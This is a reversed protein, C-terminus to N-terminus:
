FHEKATQAPCGRSVRSHPSLQAAFSILFILWLLNVPHFLRTNKTFDLATRDTLYQILVLLLVLARFSFRVLYSRLMKTIQEM